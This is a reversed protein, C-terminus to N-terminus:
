QAKKLVVEVEAWLARCAKQEDAPLKALATADRIGALDTDAKWHQLTQVVFQRAQPRATKSRKSWGGPRGQALRHGTKALPIKGSTSRRSTRGKGCGALAAACAANYRNQVQMDEALRPQAQFRRTWFGRCRRPTKTTAFSLRLWAIRCADKPQDEGRLVAPAEDLEVM